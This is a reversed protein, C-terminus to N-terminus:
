RLAARQWRLHLFRREARPPLKRTAPPTPVPASSRAPGFLQQLMEDIKAYAAARQAEIAKYDVAVDDEHHM